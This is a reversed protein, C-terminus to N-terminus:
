GAPRRGTARSSTRRRDARRSRRRIARGSRRRPGSPLSRGRDGERGRLPVTIAHANLHTPIRTPRHRHHARPLAHRPNEARALPEREVLGSLHEAPGELLDLARDAGPEQANASLPRSAVDRDLRASREEGFLAHIKAGGARVAAAWENRRLFHEALDTVSAPPKSTPKLSDPERSKRLRGRGMRLRRRRRM